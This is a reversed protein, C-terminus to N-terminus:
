FIERRVTNVNGKLDKFMSVIAIKFDKKATEM